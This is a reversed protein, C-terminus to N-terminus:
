AKVMLSPSIVLRSILGHGAKEIQLALPGQNCSSGLPCASRRHAQEPFKACLHQCRRPGTRLAQRLLKKDFRVQGGTLPTFGYGLGGTM